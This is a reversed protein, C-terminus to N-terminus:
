LGERIKKLVSLGGITGKESWTTWPSVEEGSPLREPVGVEVPPSEVVAAPPAAPPTHTCAAFVLVSMILIGLFPVVRNKM